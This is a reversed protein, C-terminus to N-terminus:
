KNETRKTTEDFAMVAKELDVAALILYEVKLLVLASLGM